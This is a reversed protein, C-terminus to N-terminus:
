YRMVAQHTPTPCVPSPPRLIACAQPPLYLVSRETQTRGRSGRVPRSQGLWGM